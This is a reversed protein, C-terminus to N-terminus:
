ASMIGKAACDRITEMTAAAPLTIIAQDINEPLDSISTHVNLGEIEGGRPNVLYIKGEFGNAQLNRIVVNGPKGPTASAGIVVVNKPSFIKELYHATQAPNRRTM